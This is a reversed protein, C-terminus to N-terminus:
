TPDPLNAEGDKFADPWVANDGNKALYAIARKVGPPPPEFKAIDRAMAVIESVEADTLTEGSNARDRLEHFRKTREPSLYNEAKGM